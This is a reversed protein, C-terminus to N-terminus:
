NSLITVVKSCKCDKIELMLFYTGSPLGATNFKINHEGSQQYGNFVNKVMQGLINYLKLSAFAPEQLHFRATACNRAPNPFISLNIKGQRQPQREQIGLSWNMDYFTQALKDILVIATDPTQYHNKWYAFIICFVITIISDPPLDFPGASMLFRQDNPPPIITDFPQYQGNLNYGALLLYRQPDTNPTSGLTFRKFATMELQPNESPDRWDPVGDNDVDWFEPPVNAWYYASDREYQDPIGDQDKDQGWQLDFPTQLLDFGIVGPFSDWGTEPSEQWQFALNDVWISDGSIVFFRGPIATCLDNGFAEDGIDCDTLVGVYCQHLTRDTVNKFEYKFFTMNELLPYTWEYVSQYIEIGISTDGPIHYTYDSDNFCCWSDQHSLLEQPAMPFVWAPPPWNDPNTYIIAYQNQPAMGSLGPACESAGGYPEYGTTVLTDGTVSDITSFWFGAGFIYSQGSGKPWWCGSNMSTTQGFKGYNSVCMQVQNTDQIIIQFSRTRMQNKEAKTIGFVMICIILIQGM